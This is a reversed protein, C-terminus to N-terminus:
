LFESILYYTGPEFNLAGALENSNVTITLLVEDQCVQQTTTSSSCDPNEVGETNCDCM